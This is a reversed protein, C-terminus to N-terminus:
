IGNDVHFETQKIHENQVLWETVRCELQSSGTLWPGYM